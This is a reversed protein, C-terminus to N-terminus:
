FRKLQEVKVGSSSVSVGPNFLCWPQGAAPIFEAFKKSCLLLLFLLLLLLRGAREAPYNRNM